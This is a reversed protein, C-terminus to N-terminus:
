SLEVCGVEGSVEFNVGLGAEVGFPTLSSTIQHVVPGSTTAHDHALGGFLFAFPTTDVTPGLPGAPTLPTTPYLNDINQIAARVEAKTLDFSWQQTTVSRDDDDAGSIDYGVDVDGSYTRTYVVELAQGTDNYITEVSISGEVQTAFGATQGDLVTIGADFSGFYTTTVSYGDDFNHRRTSVGAEANTSATGVILGAGAQATAGAAGFATQEVFGSDPHRTVFDFEPRDPILDVNGDTVAGLFDNVRSAGPPIAYEALDVLGNAAATSLNEAALHLLVDNVNDEPALEYVLGSGLVAWAKAEAKALAGVSHDGIYIRAGAAAGAGGAAGAEAAITLVRRGDAFEHVIYRFGLSGDGGSVFDGGAQARASCTSTRVPVDALDAENVQGDGTAESDTSGEPEGQGQIVDSEGPTVTASSSRDSTYDTEGFTQVESVTLTASTTPKSRHSGDGPGFGPATSTWEIDYGIEVRLDVLGILDSTHEFKFGCDSDGETLGEEWPVGQGESAGGECVVKHVAGTGLETLTWTTRKPIATIVVVTPSKGAPGAYGRGEIDDWGSDTIAFFSWLNVIQNADPHPWVRWDPSVNQADLQAQAQAFAAAHEAPYNRPPPTPLPVPEDDDDNGGDGGGGFALDCVEQSLSGCGQAFAMPTLTLALATSFAITCCALVALRIALSPTSM